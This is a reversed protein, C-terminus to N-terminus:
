NNKGFWDEKAIVGVPKSERDVIVLHHIDGHQAFAIDADACTATQPITVIPATMHRGVQHFYERDIHLMGFVNTEFIHPLVSEDDRLFRAWLHFYRQVDTKTLIGVCMGMGDVVVASTPKEMVLKDTAATMKEYHYLKILRGMVTMVNPSNVAPKRTPRKLTHM